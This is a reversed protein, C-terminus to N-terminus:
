LAGDQARIMRRFFQDEDLMAYARRLLERREDFSLGQGQQEPTWRLLGEQFAVGFYPAYRFAEPNGLIRPDGRSELYGFLRARLRNLVSAYAAQGALNRMQLPDALVQYLEYEPRRGFSLAHLRPYDQAHEEMYSKAPGGDVDLPIAEPRANWILLYDRTRIARSPYSLGGSGPHFGHRERYMYIADRHALAPFPTDAARRTATDDAVAEAPASLSTAPKSRPSKPATDDAVAEVLALLPVLSQGTMQPPAQMGAVELLTPAIDTLSVLEEVRRGGDIREGWWIVLPMRTGYDYLTAKARPFPMGNDSTFVVVTDNQLGRRHPTALVRGVQADIHEIEAYYENIDERVTPADPMFAPVTVDAPNKGRVAALGPTYGRHPEFTGIWFAFPRDRDANGHADESANQNENQEPNQNADKLFAEFNAAYDIDSIQVPDFRDGYPRTRIGNYPKGAPNIDRDVLFGPAWGKGTAGVRYGREALLETYTQFRAPLYGWLTAGEDLEFGNRGTLISARSPTCSPTSVFAHDFIVGEHALRDLNPTAVENSGYAGMHLWSMDDAIILILNPREATPERDVSPAQGYGIAPAVALVLALAVALVLAPIPASAVCPATRPRFGGGPSQCRIATLRLVGAPYAM